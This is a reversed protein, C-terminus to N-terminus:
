VTHVMAVPALEVRHHEMDFNMGGAAPYLIKAPLSYRFSSNGKSRVVAM